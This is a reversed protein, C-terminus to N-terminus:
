GYMPRLNHTRFAYCFMRDLRITQTLWSTLNRIDNLQMEGVTGCALWRCNLGSIDNLLWCLLVWHPVCSMGQILNNKVRGSKGNTHLERHLDFLSLGLQRFSPGLPLIM